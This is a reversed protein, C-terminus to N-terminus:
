KNKSKKFNEVTIRMDYIMAMMALPPDMISNVKSQYEASKIMFIPILNKFEPKENVIFKIFETSFAVMVSEVQGSYEKMLVAAIDEPNKSTFVLEFLKNFAAHSSKITQGDIKTIGEVKLGQLLNLMARMDPFYKPIIAELGDKTIVLGEEKCIDMLRKAYKYKLAKRDSEDFTFDIVNFRSQIPEPIKNIYNCTAIFGVHHYEDMSARLAKHFQMSAGDIEDLIVIKGNDYRITDLSQLACFSKIQDRIVDVSSERSANIYKYPHKFEKVLVRALSSKGTGPGDSHLLIRNLGKLGGEFRHSLRDPLIMQDLTDPRYKETFLISQIHRKSM